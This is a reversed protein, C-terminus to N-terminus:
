KNIKTTFECNFNCWYWVSDHACVGLWFNTGMLGNRSYAWAWAWVSAWMNPEHVNHNNTQTFLLFLSSCVIFGFLTCKAVLPPFLMPPYYIQLHVSRQWVFYIFALGCFYVCVFVCVFEIGCSESRDPIFCADVWMEMWYSHHYFLPPTPRDYTACVDVEFSFLHSMLFLVENAECFQRESDFQSFVSSASYLM